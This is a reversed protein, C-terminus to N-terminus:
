EPNLSWWKRGDHEVESWIYNRLRTRVNITSLQDTALDQLKDASVEVDLTFDGGKEWAFRLPEVLEALERTLNLQKMVDKTLKKQDNESLGSEKLLNMARRSVLGDVYSHAAKVQFEGEQILNGQNRQFYRLLDQRLYIQNELGRITRWIAPDVGGRENLEDILLAFFNATLNYSFDIFVAAASAERGVSQAPNIEVGAIAFKLQVELEDIETRPVPFHRLLADQEYYQSIERAYMDSTFISQSVDRFLSGLIQHLEPM